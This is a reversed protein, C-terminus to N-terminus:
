RPPCPVARTSYDDRKPEGGEVGEVHTVLVDGDRRYEILQPYDYAPNTFRLLGPAQTVLLFSVATPIGNPAPHYRWGDADRNIRLMEHAAPSGDHNVEVYEGEVAGDAARAYRETITAGDERLGSFCGGLVALLPASTAATRSEANGEFLPVTVSSLARRTEREPLPALGAGTRPEPAAAPDTPLYAHIAIWTLVALACGGVIIRKAGPAM